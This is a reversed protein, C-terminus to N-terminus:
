QPGTGGIETSKFGSYDATSATIEQVVDQVNPFVGWYNGTADLKGSNRIVTMELTVPEGANNKLYVVDHITLTAGAYKYDDVIHGKITSTTITTPHWSAGASSGYTVMNTGNGAQVYGTVSNDNDESYVARAMLIKGGGPPSWTGSAPDSTSSYSATVSM